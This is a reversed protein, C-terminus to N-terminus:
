KEKLVYMKRAEIKNLKIIGIKQSLFAIFMGSKNDFLKIVM